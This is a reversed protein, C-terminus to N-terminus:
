GSVQPPRSAVEVLGFSLEGGQDPDAREAAEPQTFGGSQFNFVDVEQTSLKAHRTLHLAGTLFLDVDRRRLVAALAGHIRRLPKDVHQGLM